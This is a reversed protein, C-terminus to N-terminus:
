FYFYIPAEEHDGNSKLLSIVIDYNKIVATIAQPVQLEPWKIVVCPSAMGGVKFIM